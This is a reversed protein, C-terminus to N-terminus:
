SAIASSSGRRGSLPVHLRNATLEPLTREAVAPDDEDAYGQHAAAAIPPQLEDEAMALDEKSWCVIFKHYYYHFLLYLLAADYAHGTGYIFLVSCFGKVGVSCFTEM